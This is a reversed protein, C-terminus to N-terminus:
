PIPVATENQVVDYITRAPILTAGAGRDAALGFADGSPNYILFSQDQLQHQFDGSTKCKYLIGHFDGGSESISQGEAQFYPRQDDTKRRLVRKQAPTTGSDSLTHGFMLKVVDFQFGGSDMEWAVAIGQGRTVVVQDDGRLTDTDESETWTMTQANPLDTSTSGLTEGTTYGTIKIDRMGYPIAPATFTM